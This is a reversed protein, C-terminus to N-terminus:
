YWLVQGQTEFGLGLNYEHWSALLIKKKKLKLQAKLKHIWDEQGGDVSLFSEHIVM